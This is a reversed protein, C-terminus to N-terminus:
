TLCFERNRILTMIYNQFPNLKFRPWPTVEKLHSPLMNQLTQLVGPINQELHQWPDVRCQWPPRSCCVRGAAALVVRSGWPLLGPPISDLFGSCPALCGWMEFVHFLVSEQHQSGLFFCVVKRILGSMFKVWRLRSILTRLSSSAWLLFANQSRSWWTPFAWTAEAM